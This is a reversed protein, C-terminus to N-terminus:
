PHSHIGGKHVWNKIVVGVALLNDIFHEPGAMNYNVVHGKFLIIGQVKGMHYGAVNVPM